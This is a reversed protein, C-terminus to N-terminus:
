DLIMIPEPWYYQSLLVVAENTSNNSNNRELQFRHRRVFKGCKGIASHKHAGVCSCRGCRVLTFPSRVYVLTAYCYFLADRTWQQYCFSRVSHSVDLYLRYKRDRDSHTHTRTNTHATNPTAAIACIVARREKIAYQRWLPEYWNYWRVWRTLNGKLDPVFNRIEVTKILTEFFFKLLTLLLSKFEM